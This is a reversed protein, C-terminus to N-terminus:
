SAEPLRDFPSAAPDTPANAAAAGNLSDVAEAIEHWLLGSHRKLWPLRAIEWAVDSARDGYARILNEAVRYVGSEM